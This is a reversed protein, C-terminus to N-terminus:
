EGTFSSHPGEWTSSTIFFRDALAPSLLLCSNSGQTLFIGQLLYHYGVGTNKGPSNWLPAQLAVSCPTAFVRVSSFSAACVPVCVYLCVCHTQFLLRPASPGELQSHNFLQSCVHSSPSPFLPACGLPLPFPGRIQWLDGGWVSPAPSTPFAPHSAWSQCYAPM